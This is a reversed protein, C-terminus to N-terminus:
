HSGAKSGERKKHITNAITSAWPMHASDTSHHTHCTHACVGPPHGHQVAPPQRGPSRTLHAVRARDRTKRRGSDRRSSDEKKQAGCIAISASSLLLTSIYIYITGCMTAHVCIAISISSLPLTSATTHTCDSGLSLYADGEGEGGEGLGWVCVQVTATDVARGGGWVCVGAGHPCGSRGPECRVTERVRARACM